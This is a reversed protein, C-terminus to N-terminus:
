ITISAVALAALGEARGVFGMGDTTTAKVSVDAGVVETLSAAIASRHPAVRLEQAIITLDANLVQWGAAQVMRVVDELIVMSDAGAWQPDGSPFHEGIDGLGAAGLLADALAHAAIDGDSTAELGRSDDVVVGGLKIPPAGGFRHADIGLGVRYRSM